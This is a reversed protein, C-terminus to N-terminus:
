REPTGRRREIAARVVALYNQAYVARQRIGHNQDHLRRLALVAPVTEMRLGLDRARAFWDIFEGAGYAGFPGVRRFASRRVLLVDAHPGAAWAERPPVDLVAAEWRDDPVQALWGSVLDIGPRLADLQLRLRDRTWRDDADLFALLSRSTEAVGRNRARGTGATPQTVVRVHPGFARAVEGSGDTSGDDVVVLEGPPESQGLVSEVAEALTPANDLVPIVVSVDAGRLRARGAETV